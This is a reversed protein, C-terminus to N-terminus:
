GQRDTDVTLQRSEPSSLNMSRSKGVTKKALGTVDCWDYIHSFEISPAALRCRSVKRHTSSQGGRNRFLQLQQSLLTNRCM